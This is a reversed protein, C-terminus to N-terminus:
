VYTSIIDGTKTEFFRDSRLMERSKSVWGCGFGVGTLTKSM